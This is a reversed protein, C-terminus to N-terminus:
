IIFRNYIRFYILMAIPLWSIITVIAIMVFGVPKTKLAPAAATAATETGSNVCGDASLEVMLNDIDTILNKRTIRHKQNLIVSFLRFSEGILEGFLGPIRLDRRITVRSIMILAGLTVARHIGISLAGATIKFNGISYLVQGYPTILNFLVICLIVALTILPNNKRGTLWALFWFAVFAFIRFVTFPNFLVAPMIILGTIFLARASFLNDSAIQRKIRFETLKEKIKIRFQTLKEKIKKM